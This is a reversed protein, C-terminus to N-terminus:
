ETPEVASLQLGEWDVAMKALLEPESVREELHPDGYRDGDIGLAQFAKLLYHASVIYDVARAIHRAVLQENAAHAAGHWGDESREM